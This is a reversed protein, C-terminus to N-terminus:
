RQRFAVQLCCSGLQSCCESPILVKMPRARRPKIKKGGTRKGKAVRLGTAETTGSGGFSVRPRSRSRSGRDVQMPTAGSRSRSRSVRTSSSPTTFPNRSDRSRSRRRMQDLGSVVSHSVARGFATRAANSSM